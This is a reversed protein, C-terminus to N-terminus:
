GDLYTQPLLLQHFSCRAARRLCDNTGERASFPLLRSIDRRAFSRSIGLQQRAGSLKVDPLREVTRFFDNIQLQALVDLSWNAWLQNL